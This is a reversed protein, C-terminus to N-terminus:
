GVAEGDLGVRRFRRALVTECGCAPCRVPGPTGPQYANLRRCLMSTCPAIYFAPRYEAAPPDGPEVPRAVVTTEDFADM